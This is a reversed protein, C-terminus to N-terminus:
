NPVLKQLGWGIRYFLHRIPYTRVVRRMATKMRIDNGVYSLFFRWRDTRTIPLKALRWKEVSRNLRLLNKMKERLSLVPRRYSRDFDILLLQERAIMMNKLQLDGHFFGTEHFQRLLIGASRIMKRKKYLNDPSPSPGIEHFYQVLNLACPVELSFLYPHYFPFLTLRHIAGILEITPIGSSRMEETLALERFSRSGFLYLNRTFLGFLGGHSYRRVIMREGNKIPISPHLSRGMLYRTADRHRRFFTELDAIGQQLLLDKYEDKLLLFTKGKEIISFSPPIPINKFM